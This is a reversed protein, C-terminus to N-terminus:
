PCCPTDPHKAALVVLQQRLALNELVLKRRRQVCHSLTPFLAGPMGPMPPNYFPLVTVSARYPTCATSPRAPARLNNIIRNAAHNLQYSRRGTVCSTMPEHGTAGALIGIWRFVSRSALAKGPSSEASIQGGHFIVLSKTIALGLGYRCIAELAVLRLRSRGPCPLLSKIKRLAHRMQSFV